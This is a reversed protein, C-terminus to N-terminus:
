GDLSRPVRISGGVSHHDKTNDLAHALREAVDGMQDLYKDRAAAELGENHADIRALVDQDDSLIHTPVDQGHWHDLARLRDIVRGDLQAVSTVLRTVAGDLSVEVVDFGGSQPNAFVHLRPSLEKIGRVVNQVDEEVLVVGEHSDVWTRLAYVEM